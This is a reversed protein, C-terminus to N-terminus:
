LYFCEQGMAIYRTGTIGEREMTERLDDRIILTTPRKALRFLKLKPDIRAPDLYLKYLPGINGPWLYSPESVTREMDVCDQATLVNAIFSDKSAIRRKHNYIRIPVWEIKAAEERDWLTKLRNSVMFVRLTNGIFDPIILGPHSTDMRVSLDTPLPSGAPTGEALKWSFDRLSPSDTDIICHDDDGSSDLIFYSHM